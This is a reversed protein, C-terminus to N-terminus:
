NEKKRYEGRDRQPEENVWEDAINAHLVRGISLNETFTKTKRDILLLETYCNEHQFNSCRGFTMFILLMSVIGFIITGHLRKRSDRLRVRM